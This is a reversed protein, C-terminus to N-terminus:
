IHNKIVNAFTKLEDLNAAGTYRDLLQQQTDADLSNFYQQAEASSNLLDNTSNFEMMIVERNTDAATLM